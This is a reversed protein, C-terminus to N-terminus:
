APAEGPAQVAAPPTVELVGSAILEDIRAADLGLLDAAVERTHEGIWPAKDIYPRPM